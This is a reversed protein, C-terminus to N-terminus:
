PAVQWVISGDVMAPCTVYDTGCAECCWTQGEVLVEPFVEDGCVWCTEGGEVNM